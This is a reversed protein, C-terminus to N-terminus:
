KSDSGHAPKASNFNDDKKILGKIKDLLSM